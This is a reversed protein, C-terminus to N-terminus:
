ATTIYAGFLLHPAAAAAPEEDESAPAPSSPESPIKNQQWAEFALKDSLLIPEGKEWRKGAEVMAAKFPTAGGRVARLEEWIFKQFSHWRKQGETLVREKVPAAPAKVAAKKGKKPTEPGAGAAAGGGGGGSALQAQLEAKRAMFAAEEAALQQEIAARQTAEKEAAALRRAAEEKLIKKQSKSQMQVVLAAIEAEHAAIISSRDM